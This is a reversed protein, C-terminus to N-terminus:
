QTREVAHQSLDAAVPPTFFITAGQGSRSEIWINGGYHEVIRKCPNLGAGTSGFERDHLQNFIKFARAHYEPAIGLRNDDKAFFTCVRWAIRILCLDPTPSPWLVQPFDRITRQALQASAAANETLFGAAPDSALNLPASLTEVSVSSYELWKCNVHNWEGSPAATWVPEPWLEILERFLDAKPDLNEAM